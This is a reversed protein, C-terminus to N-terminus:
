QENMNITEPIVISYNSDVEYTLTSTGSNIQNMNGVEQDQAFVTLTSGVLLCAAVAVGLVKKM